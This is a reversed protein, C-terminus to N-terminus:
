RRVEILDRIYDTPTKNFRQRFCTSFYKASKFGVEFAITSINQEGADLYQLSKKLRVEKIFDVPSLGTLGKLKRYFASRSINMLDAATDITFQPEKLNDEVIQIVKKLFQEDYSTIVTESPQVEWPKKEHLIRNFLRKRQEIINNLSAILFDNRFPKALYHDAGYKLGEIQSEISFKASLLVVPIHSTTPDNKLKNLMAIGDMVPMMVDSLIVDPLSDTAKQLGEAGNEATEVQYHTGLQLHLFSRLDRNDEVLLLQPLQGNRAPIALEPEDDSFSQEPEHEFIDQTDDYIVTDKAFHDKGLRLSIGIILGIPENKSASIKGHHQQILERSLALGIGTGKFNGNESATGGFYLEFIEDLQEDPVGRGEDIVKVEIEDANSQLINIRIRKGDPTYKLANALVNYLVIDIKEADIWVFLESHETEITIEVNKQDALDAFYGLVRRVFSVLEVKSIKLHANRSQAKRLDLLQNIFRVVRQANKQVITLHRNGQESLKETKSIQELPNLILTLPTRLEHSVNTFFNLKLDSLKQEIIIQQRLRFMALAYRRILWLVIIGLLVYLAYAWTTRWPPPLIIIELARPPTQTDANASKVEFTYEGPSLNTFSARTENRNNHWSPSLGILRYLYNVKNQSRYDLMMYDISVVNHDYDLIIKDTYNVPMQLESRTPAPIIDENNVMLNTLVINGSIEAQGIKEPDFHIYGNYMGFVLEGNAALVCSSESFGGTPVGDYINYNRFTTRKRDLCSLGNQTAIWLNGKRDETCGLLNDSPLGQKTSYNIFRLADIPNKGIAKNLGGSSTLVWMVDDRDRYVYQVDNDGLSTNDLPIKVYRKFDANFFDEMEPDIVLLGETTGIWIRDKEDTALTRVKDCVALPYKRFKNGHHYFRPKKTSQDILNIGGGYTGVWIRGQRDELLSYVLDSSISFPDDHQHSYQSIKYGGKGDPEAKLLGEGKTGLWINKKRDEMVTYIGNAPNDLALIQQLKGDKRVFAKGSKSTLWLQGQSDLQIGRVENEAKIQTSAILQQHIFENQPLTIRELAGETSSLWLIGKLDYSFATVMNSFRYDRTRPDNYFYEFRQTTEDFYGFGCGKMRVFVTGNKTECVDYENPALIRNSFNEQKLHQSKGTVLNVRHVGVHEPEIWLIGTKDEYISHIGGRDIKLTSTITFDATSVTVLKGTSLSCFLKTQDQSVKLSNIRATEVDLSTHNQGSTSARLLKGEETGFYVYNSNESISTVHAGAIENPLAVVKLGDPQNPHFCSMGKPTGIWIRQSQDQYIKNVDDSFLKSSSHTSLWVLKPVERSKFPSILFAGQGRTILALQRNPLVIIENVEVPKRTYVELFDSIPLFEETRKDFRYIKKDYAQLWLFGDKDEIINDIRNSKLASGDGPRSKYVVFNQGDFRNIGAWTGMWLFGEHDKM